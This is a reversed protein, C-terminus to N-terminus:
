VPHQPPKALVLRVVEAMDRIAIYSTKRTGPGPSVVWGMRRVWRIWRVLNEMCGGHRIRTSGLWTEARRVEIFMKDNCIRREDSLAVCHRQGAQRGFGGGLGVREERAFPGM